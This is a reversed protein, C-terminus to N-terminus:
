SPADVQALTEEDGLWQIALLTIDDSPPSSDMFRRIDAHINDVAEQPGATVPLDTLLKQLRNKGFFLGDKVAENVGDTIMCILDGVQLQICTMGYPYDQLACIPPGSVDELNIQSVQGNRLLFPAHHGACALHLQGNEANLVATLTTIFLSEPNSRNLESDLKRLSLSLEGGSQRSFAGFMTKAISMFLSAPVGKGSVDGISVCLRADDLMFCDYYDGGVEKASELLTAIAFRRENAFTQLPDPLMGLQVRRAVSLEGAMRATEVQSAHLISTLLWILLPILLVAISLGDFLWLGFRFAFIGGGLLLLFTLAGLSATHRSRMFKTSIILLLSCVIFIFCEFVQIWPPRLLGSGEILSEIMQVHMDIKPSYEGLPTLVKDLVGLATFGILVFRGSFQQRDFNGSLVDAASIYRDHQYPGFHPLFNAKSSSPITYNGVSVQRVGPQPWNGVVARVLVDSGLSVRLMELGLTAVTHDRVSTLLPMSRVVGREAGFRKRDSVTNLLGQGSAAQAFLPLNPLNDPYREIHLMADGGIGVIPASNLQASKSSVDENNTAMVGIVTKGGRIAEAMNLDPDSLRELALPSLQPYLHQLATPSLRDQEPFVMDLGLALPQKAHILRILKAVRSRPWPWQGEQRISKEDIAVVLAPAASRDRPYLRQYYDFLAQRANLLPLQNAFILIVLGLAALLLAITLSRRSLPLDIM